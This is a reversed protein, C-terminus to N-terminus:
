KHLEFYNEFDKKNLPKSYYFGQIIDCGIKKVYEMQEKTEVGEVVTKIDLQLAMLVIYNIINKDINLNATDVFSKDIKIIDVPMNQLLNLSSYGTGFDDLSVVFGERRLNELQQIVDVNLLNTASETIELEIMDKSVGYQYMIALYEDIFREDTFHEKSVNVSIHPSYGYKDQWSVIDKCVAEFVYLDLKCIFKNKEFIPIFDAPSIVTGNRYWRVLAEAGVIREDVSSIKPQYFVKFECDLLARQMSSEIEQEFIFQNELFDDYIYYNHDYLGKIQQRSMVARDLALDLSVNDVIHYVGVSFYLFVKKDFIMLSSCKNFITQLLLVIDGDFSFLGAFVDHSMRCLLADKPLVDGLSIGLVRLIENSFDYGFKQNFVKFQNIDLTFSYMTKDHTKLYEDGHKYFYIENYLGTVSDIYISKQLDMINQKYKKLILYCFLFYCLLLIFFVFFSFSFTPLFQTDIVSIFYLGDFIPEYHFMYNEYNIKVQFTSTLHNLIGDKMQNIKSFDNSSLNKSKLYDYIDACNNLYGFSDVLVEGEKTILYMGGEGNYFDKFFTNFDITTIMVYSKGKFSFMRSVGHVLQDDVLGERNFFFRSEDENFFYKIDGYNKIVDGHSTKGTGDKDLIILREFGSEEFDNGLFNLIEDIDKFSSNSIYHIAFDLFQNQHSFELNVQEINNKSLEDVMLFRQSEINYFSRFLLFGFFSFFIISIVLFFIKFNLKLKNILKM